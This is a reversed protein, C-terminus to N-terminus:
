VILVKLWLERDFVQRMNLAYSASVVHILMEMVLEKSKTDLTGFSMLKKGDTNTLTLLMGFINDIKEGPGKDLLFLEVLM